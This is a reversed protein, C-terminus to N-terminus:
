RAPSDSRGCRTPRTGASRGLDVGCMLCELAGELRGGCHPCREKADDKSRQTRVIADTRGTTQPLMQHDDGVAPPTGPTRKRASGCGVTGGQRAAPKQPSSFTASAFSRGARFDFVEGLEPSFEGIGTARATLDMHGLALASEGLDRFEQSRNHRVWARRPGAELNERASMVETSLQRARLVRSSRLTGISTPMSGAM